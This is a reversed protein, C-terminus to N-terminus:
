FHKARIANLKAVAADNTVAYQEMKRQALAKQENLLLAEIYNVYILDNIKGDMSEVAMKFHQVADQYKGRKIQIVGLTDLVNIDTPRLTQAQEAHNLAPDLEGREMLLYALNNHAIFNNNNLAVAARYNEIALNSNQGIQLNALRMINLQDNPVRNVHQQLFTYAPLPGNTQKIVDYMMAANQPTPQQNYAVELNTKAKQWDKNRIQLQALLGKSFPLSRAREPLQEFQTRALAAKNSRLLLHIHMLRIELNKGQLEDIYRSTLALASETEGRTELAIANGIIALPNNPQKELWKENLEVFKSFQKNRQYNKSLAQWFPEPTDTLVSEFQEIARETQQEMSYFQGLVVPLSRDEPSQEILKVLHDIVGIPQNLKKSLIYQKLLPPIFSPHEAILGNLETLLQQQEEATDIPLLDLLAMKFKPNDPENTLASQFASRAADTNGQQAHITGALMAGKVANSISTRWRKAIAMAKDYQRTSIYAKVLVDEISEQNVGATESKQVSDLATELDLIGDVDNLSLKLLGVNTLAKPSTLQKPQKSLVSRAQQVDGRKLLAHGVGSVLSADRETIEDFQRITDNAELTMGLKLQTDALIRLAPHSAPIESAVLALHQNATEFDKLFYASVGAILRTPVDEVQVALANEAYLLAQEHDKDQMRAIAKLQNLVPQKANVKLLQDVLPESKDYQNSDNYLRALIFVVDLDDKHHDVYVQYVDAAEELKRQGLLLNAKLKLADPQSPNDALLNDLQIQAGDVQNDLLLDIVLALPKYPSDTNLQRIDDILSKAKEAQDLRMHAQLQYFHIKAQDDPNISQNLTLALLAKDAGTKQYTESLLPILTDLRYKFELAREFEKQAFDYQKDALYAKGLLFRAEGNNPASKVANKYEIIAAKLEQQKFLSNGSEIYETTSKQGCAALM